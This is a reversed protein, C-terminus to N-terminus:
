APNGQRSYTIGKTKAEIWSAVIGPVKGKTACWRYVTSKDVELEDAVRKHFDAGYLQTLKRSLQDGTM